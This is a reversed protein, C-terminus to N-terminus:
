VFQVLDPFGYQAILDFAVYGENLLQGVSVGICDTLIWIDDEDAKLALNLPERIATLESRFFSSQDPNRFCYRHEGLCTKMLFGISM